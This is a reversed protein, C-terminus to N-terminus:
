INIMMRLSKLCSRKNIKKFASIKKICEVKKNEEYGSKIERLENELITKRSNLAKIKGQLM